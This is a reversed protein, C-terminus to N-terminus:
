GPSPSQEVFSVLQDDVADTMITLTPRSAILQRTASPVDRDRAFVLLPISALEGSYQLEEIVEDVGDSKVDLLIARPQLARALRSIQVLARTMSVV